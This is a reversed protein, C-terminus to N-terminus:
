ITAITLKFYAAPYVNYITLVISVYNFWNVLLILYITLYNGFPNPYVVSSVLLVSNM